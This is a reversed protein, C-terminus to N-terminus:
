LTRNHVGYVDVAGNYTELRPHLLRFIGVCICLQVACGVILLLVSVSLLLAFVIFWADKTTFDVTDVGDNIPVKMGVHRKDGEVFYSLRDDVMAYWGSKVAADVLMCKERIMRRGMLIDNDLDMLTTLVRPMSDDRKLMVVCLQPPKRTVGYRARFIADPGGMIGLVRCIGQDEVRVDHLLIINLTKLTPLRVLIRQAALEAERPEIPPGAFDELSMRFRRLVSNFEAYYARREESDFDVRYPPPFDLGTLKSSMDAPWGVSIATLFRANRKIHTLFAVLITWGGRDTFRFDNSGYLIGIGEEYTQRSLLVLNPTLHSISSQVYDARKCNKYQPLIPWLDIPYPSHLAEEYIKNRLEAPLQLFPFINRTPAKIPPPPLNSRFISSSLIQYLNPHANRITEHFSSKDTEKQVTPKNTM